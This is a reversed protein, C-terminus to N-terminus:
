DGGVIGANKLLRLVGAVEEDTLGQLAICLVAKADEARVPNKAQDKMKGLFAVAKDLLEVDVTKVNRDPTELVAMNQPMLHLDGIEAPLLPMNEERLIDNLSLWGVQRGVQYANYKSQVDTKMMSRVDHDVVFAGREERRLLKRSYEQRWKVLWPRLTYVLYELAQHEINSFTAQVLDRLMHPPMNFWRAVERVQHQRSEIMQNENPKSETNVWKMGEDLVAVRHQNGPGRHMREWSERLRQKAQESLDSPHEIMGGPSANRGFYSSAYRDLAITLGLSEAALQVLSYGTLGDLSPGLVQVIESAPYDEDKEDAFRASFHYFPRGADDRDPTVQAPPLPWLAIPNKSSDREILAYGSGHMLANAQMLEHFVMPGMDPNPEESILRHVPHNAAEVRKSDQVTFLGVPLSGISESITRVAAWVASVGLMSEQTVDIGSETPQRGLLAVLAPDRLPIGAFKASRHALWAWFQKMM